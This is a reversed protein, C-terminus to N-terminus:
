SISPPGRPAIALSFNYGFVETSAPKLFPTEFQENPAKTVVPSNHYRSVTVKCLECDHETESIHSKHECDKSFDGHYIARHCADSEAEESHLEAHDHHHVAQHLNEFSIVNLLYGTLIVTAAVRM